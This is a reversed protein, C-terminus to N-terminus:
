KLTGTSQQPTWAEPRRYVVTLKVDLQAFKTTYSSDLFLRLRM